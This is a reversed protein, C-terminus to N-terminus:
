WDNLVSQILPILIPAIAVIIWDIHLLDEYAVDRDEAKRKLGRRCFYAYIWSGLVVIEFFSGLEKSWLVCEPLIVLLPIVRVYFPTWRGLCYGLVAPGIGATFFYFMFLGYGLWEWWQFRLIYNLSLASVM